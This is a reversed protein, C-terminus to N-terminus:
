WSVFLAVCLLCLSDALVVSNIFVMILCDYGVLLGVLLLGFVCLVVAFKICGFCVCCCLCLVLSSGLLLGFVVPLGSVALGFWIALSGCLWWFWFVGGLWVFM